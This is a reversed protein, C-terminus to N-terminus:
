FDLGISLGVDTGLPTDEYTHDAPNYYSETFCTLDLDIGINLGWYQSLKIRYGGGISLYPRGLGMDLGLKFDCYPHLVKYSKFDFRFDTYALVAPDLSIEKRVDPFIRAKIGLGGGIFLLNNCQIGHTTKFSLEDSFPSNFCIPYPHGYDTASIVDVFGRYRVASAPMVTFIIAVLLLIHRIHKSM